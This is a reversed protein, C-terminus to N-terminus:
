GVTRLLVQASDAEPIVRGADDFGQPRQAGPSGVQVHGGQLATRRPQTQPHSIVPDQIPGDFASPPDPQM